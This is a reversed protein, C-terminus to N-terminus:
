ALLWWLLLVIMGAAVLMVWGPRRGRGRPRDWEEAVFARYDFEADPLDLADLAAQESWGSEHCAGCEPCAKASSPVEAGCVPCEGPPHFRVTM